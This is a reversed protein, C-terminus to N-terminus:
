ASVTLSSTTSFILVVRWCSTLLARSAACRRALLSDSASRSRAPAFGSASM